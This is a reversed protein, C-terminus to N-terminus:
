CSARFVYNIGDVGEEVDGHGRTGKTVFRSVEIVAGVVMGKGPKADEASGYAVGNALM